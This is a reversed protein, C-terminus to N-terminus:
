EGKLEAIHNDIIELSLNLGYYRGWDKENAMEEREKEVEEKIKELEKVILAQRLEAENM